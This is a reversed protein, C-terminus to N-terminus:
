RYCLPPTHGAARFLISIRASGGRRCKLLTPVVTLVAGVAVMAAIVAFAFSFGAMFLEPEGEVYGAVPHGALAGMHGYLLATGGTVGASMGMYRVLTGLSGAFGLDKQDVSGMISSNNPSEFLGDGVAMFVLTGYMVPITATTSLGGAFAVGAAYIVLGALAPM